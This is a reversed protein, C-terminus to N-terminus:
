NTSGVFSWIEDIVVIKSHDFPRNNKYIKVGHQIIRSFNAEMVWDVFPINSHGPVIIEVSVGRLAAAHLSTMLTQDPIFYPTMIKVSTQACVLANILTWRIKNHDEDPGDQIARAIVSKNSTQTITSQVFSPFEILEGTAFFWDEAFVKSIQDIVPGTVKFHIDDIPDEASKVENNKSINMGGVYAVDGDVCLIKRHNRLNIFRVTCRLM